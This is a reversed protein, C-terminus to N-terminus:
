GPAGTTDAEIWSRADSVTDFTHATVGLDSLEDVLHSWWAGKIAHDVLAFRKLGAEALTDALVDAIFDAGEGPLCAAANDMDLIVGSLRETRVIGAIQLFAKAQERPPAAMAIRGLLDKSTVLKWDVLPM